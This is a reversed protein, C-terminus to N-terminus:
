QPAPYARAAVFLFTWPRGLVLCWGKTRLMYEWQKMSFALQVTTCLAKRSSVAEEYGTQQPPQRKAFHSEFHSAPYPRHLLRPSCVVKTLFAVLESDSIETQRTFKEIEENLKLDEELM